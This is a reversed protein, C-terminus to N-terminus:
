LEMEPENKRKAPPVVSVDHESAKNSSSSAKIFNELLQAMFNHITKYEDHSKAYELLDNYIKRDSINHVTLIIYLKFLSAVIGLAEASITYKFKENEICLKCSTNIYPFVFASKDSIRKFQFLNEHLTPAKRFFIVITELYSEVPFDKNCFIDEFNKDVILQQLTFPKSTSHNHTTIPASTQEDDFILTNSQTM